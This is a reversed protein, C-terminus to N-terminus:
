LAHIQAGKPPSFDAIETVIGSKLADDASLWLENNRFNTWDSEPVTFHQKLISEIRAEDLRLNRIASELRALDSGPTGHTVRHLMFTASKSAKRVKAGLFVTVAASQLSGANYLTIEKPFAWIFNYLFVADCITGGMSQILLHVHGIAPELSVKSLGATIRHAAHQDIGGCFVGYVDNSQSM